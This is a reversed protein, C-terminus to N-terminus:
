FPLSCSLMHACDPSPCLFRFLSLFVGWQSPLKVPARDWSGSIVVQALLWSSIPSLWRPAGVALKHTLLPQICLYRLPIIHSNPFTKQFVARDKLNLLCQSCCSDRTSSIHQSLYSCLFSFISNTIHKSHLWPHRGCLPKHTPVSGVPSKFSFFKFKISLIICLWCVIKSFLSVLNWRGKSHPM